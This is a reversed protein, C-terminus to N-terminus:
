QFLLMKLHHSNYYNFTSVPVMGCTKEVVCPTPKSKRINFSFATINQTYTCIFLSCNCRKKGM